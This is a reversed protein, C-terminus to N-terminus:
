QKAKSILYQELRVMTSRRVDKKHRVFKLITFWGIGTEKALEKWTMTSQLMFRILDHRVMDQKLKFEDLLDAMQVM